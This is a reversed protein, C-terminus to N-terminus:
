HRVEASRAYLGEYFAALEDYALEVDCSETDSFVRGTMATVQKTSESEDDREPVDKDYKCRGTLTIVRNSYEDNNKDRRQSESNKSINFSINQVNPRSKKVIMELVKNLERGLCVLADLISEDTEM